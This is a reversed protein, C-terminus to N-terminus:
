ENIIAELYGGTDFAKRHTPILWANRVGRIKRAAGLHTEVIRRLTSINSNNPPVQLHRAFDSLTMVQDNENSNEDFHREALLEVESFHRFYGAHKMRLQEEDENLYWREGSAWWSHAEAWIQQMDLGHTINCSVIPVPWYRRDGTEDILFDAKNVSGCFSTARPWDIANRAYPKRYTDTTESLFAKIAGVDSQRFTTDLEGLECIPKKTAVDISDKSNHTALNLRKSRSFFRDPVLSNFWETKGAFQRGSFVLVSAVQEPRRWGCVAQVGQILWKRLYLKWVEDFGEALNVTDALQDFRSVGDWEKAIIWQEMPHYKERAALEDILELVNNQNAVGVKLAGDLVARRIESGKIDLANLQENAFCLETERTMLNFRTRIGYTDVLYLINARTALQGRAVAVGKATKQVDPLFDPAVTPLSVYMYQVKEEYSMDEVKDRLDSATFENLGVVGHTGGGQEQVWSLFDITRYSSCHDHFCQFGRMLPSDGMNLASYGAEVNEDSHNHAWPCRITFWGNVSEAKLVRNNDSLWKLVPDELDSVPADAGYADNVGAYSPELGLQKMLDDLEYVREPHWDVVNTVYRGRGPKVNVSGPIRFVRNVGQAGTDGYGALVIARNCAEFHKIKQPSDLEYPKLFYLGQYNPKGDVVSTQLLASLPVDPAEAKTGIDDLLVCWAALCDQRRRRLPRQKKVTSACVYWPNQNNGNSINEIYGPTAAHHRFGNEIQMALCIVDNEDKGKFLASLFDALSVDSMFRRDDNSVHFHM